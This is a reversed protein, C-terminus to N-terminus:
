KLHWVANFNADWVGTPNETSGAITSAGYYIYIKTDLPAPTYSFAKLTPIRVWAVLKGTTPDYSEIEHDLTCVSVGAGCINIGTGPNDADFARFIIDWGNANQVHGGNATSKLSADTVSYLFPYNTLTTAGSNGVKTHDITIPKRFGFDGAQAQPAAVLWAALLVLLGLVVMGSGKRISVMHVETM